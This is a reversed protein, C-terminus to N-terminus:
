HEVWQFSEEKKELPKQHPSTLLQRILSHTMLATLEAPKQKRTIIVQTREIREIVTIRDIFGVLGCFFVIKSIIVIDIFTQVRIQFEIFTIM